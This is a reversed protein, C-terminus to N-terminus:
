NIKPPDGYKEIKQDSFVSDYTGLYFGELTFEGQYVVSAALEDLEALPLLVFLRDKARKHPLNLRQTEITLGPSFILDIDLTRPAMPFPRLRSAKEEIRNVESLLALPDHETEVCVVMNLFDDSGPEMGVATTSYISSVGIIGDLSSLALDLSRQRDGINSGLSLYFIM